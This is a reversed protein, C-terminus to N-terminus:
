SSLAIKADAVHATDEHRSGQARPGTQAPTGENRHARAVPDAHGMMM